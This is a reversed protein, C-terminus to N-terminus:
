QRRRLRLRRASAYGGHRVDTSLTILRISRQQFALRESLVATRRLSTHRYPAGRRGTGASSRPIGFGAGDQPTPNGGALNRFDLVVHYRDNPLLGTVPSDFTFMPPSSPLCCFDFQEIELAEIFGLDGMPQGPIGDADGWIAFRIGGSPVGLRMLGISLSTVANNPGIEFPQAVFWEGPDPGGREFSGLTLHTNDYVTEAAPIPSLASFTFSPSCPLLGGSAM